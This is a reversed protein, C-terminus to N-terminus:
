ESDTRVSSVFTRIQRKMIFSVEKFSVGLRIHTDLKKTLNNKVVARVSYFDAGPIQFNIIMEKGEGILYDSVIAM